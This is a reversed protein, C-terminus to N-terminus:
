STANKYIRKWDIECIVNRERMKWFFFSLLKDKKKKSEVLRVCILIFFLIFQECWFCNENPCGFLGVYIQVLRFVQVILSSTPFTSFPLAVLRTSFFHLFQNSERFNKSNSSQCPRHLLIHICVIFTLEYYATLLSGFFLSFIFSLVCGVQFDLSQHKSLFFISFPSTLLSAPAFM